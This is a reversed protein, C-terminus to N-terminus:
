YSFTLRQQLPVMNKLFCGSHVNSNKFKTKPQRFISMTLFVLISVLHTNSFFYLDHIEMEKQNQMDMTVCCDHNLILSLGQYLAEWIGGNCQRLVQLFYHQSMACNVEPNPLSKHRDLLAKPNSESIVAQSHFQFEPLENRSMPKRFLQM